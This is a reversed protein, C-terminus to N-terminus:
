VEELAYAVAQEWTMARGEQWAADFAADGLLARAPGAWRTHKEMEPEPVEAGMAEHHAEAAGSLRAGKEPEGLVLLVAALPWLASAIGEKDGVYLFLPLSEELTKRAAEYKGLSSQVAGLGSLAWSTGGRDGLERFVGVCDELLELATENDDVARMLDALKILSWAAGRKEGAQRFLSLSEELYPQAGSFDNTSIAMNGLSFLAWAIGRVDGIERRFSLSEETLPIATELDGLTFAIVGLENLAQAIGILRGFKRYIVLSQNYLDQSRPYDGQMFAVGAMNNILEATGLEDGLEQRIALAEQYRGLAYAIENQRYALGGAGTLVKARAAIPLQTEARALAQELYHRGETYEGRHHWYRWFSGVLRLHHEGSGGDAACRSVAALFNGYESELRSKWEQPTAGALHPEATEILSVFYDRHRISLADAEGTTKLREGAYQRVTELLRYREKTEREDFVVLSKDVLSALLSRVQSPEIEGGSCVQEAADLDSGGSFVSLRALLTRETEGLLDYSWDLAGRLTQQRPLSTRSGGILLRLRDDLRDAIQEVTMVRARAAALEIALPIGELRACVRAVMLADGGSLTFTRQVAQAREVFLQVGEYGMLVRHLTARGKPLHEPAPVALAPVAWVAEGGIGLAERSTALIRVGACEKLLHGAVQASSGLIHECNDLVLLLRKSRLHDTLAELTTRGVDGKLDLATALHAALRDGDALSDLAILWVGDSYDKVVDNAVQIALRTKGIGGPGTLTVLRSRRLRSAVEQREDERGILGTLPCPLSGFVTPAATGAGAVPDVSPLAAHQRADSRLRTYLATTKEDPVAKLDSRILDIFDRYVQLAANRDGARDLAEMLGRLAAEWMPAIGLARQWYGAAGGNDGAAFAADALTQLARLCEQERANREQPAWEEVCGELLGGTYLAVAKALAAPRQSSIAADFIVVDVEAGSLDLALTQRNPSQLREGQSGLARRLESLVTRLNAFARDQDVDPWLIGALLEREVPRGHRIALLALLWLAKRSRLPPLPNGDVSVQIPGFLKLVLPATVIEPDSM